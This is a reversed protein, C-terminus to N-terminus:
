KYKYYIHYVLSIPLGVLFMIFSVGLIVQSIGFSIKPVNSVPLIILNMILWIIVGYLLGSLNKYKPLLGLKPYFVFFILTWSFTIFYHLLLGLTATLLGGQFAESSLVGSAIFQLVVVPNTGTRLYSNIIAATIDLTGALVATWFVIRYPVKKIKVGPVSFSRSMDM